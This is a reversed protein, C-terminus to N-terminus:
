PVEKTPTHNLARDIFRYSERRMDDPFDHMCEPYLVKVQDSAGLLDYVKAVEPMAKQVGRYDFNSDQLPSVSLFARPAIAGVLEYFDVPIRDANLEYRTEILPMYREQAWGKVKGGYYDHFPCWGCSTVTAKIRDDFVALFISNHGGLSHGITAIRQSDVDSRSLLYDVSRMHDAIGKMTGSEYQDTAFNHSLSDGFTVYDPAIVVYGRQALEVAYQRNARPGLGAVIGKGLPGTPHLALVAPRKEGAKTEPIWVYATVREGYHGALSISQRRIGEQTIEELVKVDLDPLKSRDPLKGMLTEAGAIIQMRRRAWDERTKVPQRAGADDLYHLLQKHDVGVPEKAHLPQSVALLTWAALVAGFSRRTLQAFLM